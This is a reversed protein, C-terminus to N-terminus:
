PRNPGPWQEDADVNCGPMAMRFAAVGSATVKAGGMYLMKLEKLALLEKLGADTVRTKTLDLTQL